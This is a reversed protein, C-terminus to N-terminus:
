VTHMPYCKMYRVSPEPPEAADAGDDGGDEELPWTMRRAAYGQGKAKPGVGDGDLAADGLLVRRQIQLELGERFALGKGKGKGGKGKKAARTFHAPTHEAAPVGGDWPTRLLGLRIFLDAVFEAGFQLMTKRDTRGGYKNRDFKQGLKLGIADEFDLRFQDTRRINLKRATMSLKGGHATQLEALRGNIEHCKVCAHDVSAEAIYTKASTNSIVETGVRELEDQIWLEFTGQLAPDVGDPVLKLKFAQEFRCFKAFQERVFRAKNCQKFVVAISRVSGGSKIVLLDGTDLNDLGLAYDAGGSPLIGGQHLSKGCTAGM